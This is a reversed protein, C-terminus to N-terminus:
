WNEEFFNILSIPCAKVGWYLIMQWIFLVINVNAVQAILLDWDISIHSFTSMIMWLISNFESWKSFLLNINSVINNLFFSYNESWYEWMLLSNTCIFFGNSRATPKFWVTCVNNFTEGLQFITKLRFLLNM